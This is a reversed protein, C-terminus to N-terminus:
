GQAEKKARVLERAAEEAAKLAAMLNNDAEQVLHQADRLDAALKAVQADALEKEKKATLLAAQRADNAAQADPVLQKGIAKWLDLLNVGNARLVELPDIKPEPMPKEPEPPHIEQKAISSNFTGRQKEPRTRSLVPPEGASGEATIFHIHSDRLWITGKMRPDDFRVEAGRSGSKIVTGTSVRQVNHITPHREILAVRDHKQAISM